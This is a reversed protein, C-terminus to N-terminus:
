GFTIVEKRDESKYSATVNVKLLDTLADILETLFQHNNLYFKIHQNQLILNIAFGDSKTKVKLDFSKPIPITEVHQFGWISKSLVQIEKKRIIIMGSLCFRKLLFRSLIFLFLFLYLWNFQFKANTKLLEIIFISIMIFQFLGKWTEIKGWISFKGREKKVRIPIDVYRRLYIGKKHLYHFNNIEIRNITIM